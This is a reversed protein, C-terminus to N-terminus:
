PIRGIQSEIGYGATDIEGAHIAGQASQRAHDINVIKMNPTQAGGIRGQRRMQHMVTTVGRDQDQRGAPFHSVIEADAMCRKLDLRKLKGFGARQARGM